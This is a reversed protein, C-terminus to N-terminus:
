QLEWDMKTFKMYYRRLYSRFTTAFWVLNKSDRNKLIILFNFSIRTDSKTTQKYWQTQRDDVSFRELLFRTKIPDCRRTPFCSECLFFVLIKIVVQAIRSLYGLNTKYREYLVVKFPSFHKYNRGRLNTYSIVTCTMHTTGAHLSVNWNGWCVTIMLIALWPTNELHELKLLLSRNTVTSNVGKQPWRWSSWGTIHSFIM